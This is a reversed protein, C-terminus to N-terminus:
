SYIICNKYIMLLVIQFLRNYIYKFQLHATVLTQLVDHHLQLLAAVVRVQDRARGLLRGQGGFAEVLARRQDLGAALELQEDLHQGLELLLSM